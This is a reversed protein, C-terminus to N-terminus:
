ILVVAIFLYLLMIKRIIERRKSASPGAWLSKHERLFFFTAHCAVCAVSVEVTVPV